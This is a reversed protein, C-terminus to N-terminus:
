AQYGGSIHDPVSRITTNGVNVGGSMFNLMFVKVRDNLSAYSQKSSRCGEWASVSMFTRTPGAAAFWLIVFNEAYLKCNKLESPNKFLTNSIENGVKLTVVVRREYLEM